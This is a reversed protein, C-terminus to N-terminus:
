NIGYENLIKNYMNESINECCINENYSLDSLSNYFESESVYICNESPKESVGNICDAYLVIDTFVGSYYEGSYTKEMRKIIEERLENEEFYFTDIIQSTAIEIVNLKKM